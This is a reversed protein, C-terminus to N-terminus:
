FCDGHMKAVGGLGDRIRSAFLAEAVKPKMATDELALARRVREPLIWGGAGDFRDWAV